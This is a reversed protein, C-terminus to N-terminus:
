HCVKSRSDLTPQSTLTRSFSLKPPPLTKLINLREAVYASEEDLTDWVKPSPLTEKPVNLSEAIYARDEEPTSSSKRSPLIEKPIDM